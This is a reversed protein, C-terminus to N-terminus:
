VRTTTELTIIETLLVSTKFIILGWTDAPLHWLRLQPEVKVCEVKERFVFLGPSDGRVEKETVFM